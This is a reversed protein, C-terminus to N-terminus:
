RSEAEDEGAGPGEGAGDPFVESCRMVHMVGQARRMEQGMSANPELGAEAEWTRGPDGELLRVLM